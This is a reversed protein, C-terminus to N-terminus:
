TQLSCLVAGRRTIHCFRENDRCSVHRGADTTARKITLDPPNVLTQGAQGNSRVYTHSTTCMHGAMYQEKAQCEHAPMAHLAHPCTHLRCCTCKKCTTCKNGFNHSPQVISVGLVQRHSNICHESMGFGTVHVVRPM